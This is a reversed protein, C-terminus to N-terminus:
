KVIIQSRLIPINNSVAPRSEDLLIVATKKFKCDLRFHLYYFQISVSFKNDDAAMQEPTKAPPDTRPPIGRSGSARGDDKGRPEGAPDSM